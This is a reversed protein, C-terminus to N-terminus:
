RKLKWTQNYDLVQSKILPRFKSHWYKHHTPCLPILNSPNNNTKDGDLHHVEVINTEGCIICEKKHHRFCVTTYHAKDDTHYKSSKARGGKANACKRSCHYENKSPFLKERERVVFEKECTDCKVTFDIVNGFREILREHARQKNEKRLINARPNKDCWRTHNAKETKSEFDFEKKCYKCIWM